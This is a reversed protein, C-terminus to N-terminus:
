PVPYSVRKLITTQQSTIISGIGAKFSDILNQCFDEMTEPSETEFRVEYDWAGTCVLFAVVNPHSSIYKRLQERQEALLVREVVMIRYTLVGLAKCNLLYIRGRVIELDRLRQLRYRLSSEKMGIARAITSTTGAPHKSLASLIQEDTHDVLEPLRERATVSIVGRKRMEVALFNPTYVTWEGAIGITRKSSFGDPAPQVNGFFDVMECPDRALYTIGYKFDGTMRAVWYVMRHALVRKEFAQRIPSREAIDSLFVRFDTFGLRYTDIMYIPRIVGRSLLSDRMHRVVHPRLGLEESLDNVSAEADLLSRCLFRRENDSLRIFGRM